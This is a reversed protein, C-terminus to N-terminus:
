TPMWAVWATEPSLGAQLEVALELGGSQRDALDVVILGFEGGAAEAQARGLSAPQHLAMGASSAAAAAEPPVRAPALAMWVAQSGGPSGGPVLDLSSIRRRLAAASRLASTLESASAPAVLM